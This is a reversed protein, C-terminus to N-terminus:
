NAKVPDLVKLKDHLAENGERDAFEELQRRLASSEDVRSFDYAELLAKIYLGTGGVLIPVKGRANCDRILRDAQQQFDVVSFKGDPELIDVLHHPVLALEEATPKATAIDMHKFVLMSDGSIIEGGLKQALAIGCHSKGTATPGIIAIVRPKNEM